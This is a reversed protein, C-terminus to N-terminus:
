PFRVKGLRVGERIASIRNRVGLLGFLIYLYNEVTKQDLDMALAIKRNPLGDAAHQLCEWARPPVLIPEWNGESV